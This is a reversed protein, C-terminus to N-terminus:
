YTKNGTYEDINGKSKYKMIANDYVYDDCQIKYTMSCTAVGYSKNTMDDYDAVPFKKQVWWVYILGNELTDQELNLVLGEAKTWDDVAASVETDAHTGKIYDHGCLIGGSRIKPWWAKIDNYVANYGHDADIFALDLPENVYKVAEVSDKRIFQIRHENNVFQGLDFVSDSNDVLYMKQIETCRRLVNGSNIGRSVGLELTIMGPVGISKVLDTIIEWREKM